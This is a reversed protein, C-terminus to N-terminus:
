ATTASIDMTYVVKIVDNPHIDLPTPFLVSALIATCDEIGLPFVRRYHVIVGVYVVPFSLRFDNATFTAVTDGKAPTDDWIIFGVTNGSDDWQRNDGQVEVGSLDKYNIADVRDLAVFGDQKIFRIQPPNGGFGSATPIRNGQIPTADVLNWDALFHIAGRTTLTNKTVFDRIVKNNRIQKIKFIGRIKM